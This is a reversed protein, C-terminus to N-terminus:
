SESSLRTGVGLDLDCLLDPLDVPNQDADVIDSMRVVADAVCIELSSRDFGVVQGPMEGDANQRCWQVLHPHFQKGQHSLTPMSIPNPLPLYNLGRVFREVRQWPWTLDIWGSNPIDKGTYTVAKSADQPIRRFSGDLLQPVLDELLAVGASFGKKSLSLPSEDCDLPFHKQLIVDGTDIGQDVFHWTVGYESEGNVIAWSYVNLGRYRPLPGNHFNITGLRPTDLLANRLIRMNYISFLYDPELDRIERVIKPSNVARTQKWPIAHRDCTAELLGHLASVDPDILVLAVDVDDFKCFVNLCNSAFQGNGLVVIRM